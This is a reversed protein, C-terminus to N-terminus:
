KKLNDFQNNCEQKKKRKKCFNNYSNELNKELTINKEENIYNWLLEKLPNKLLCFQFYFYWKYVERTSRNLEFYRIKIYEKRKYFDDVTTFRIDEILELFEEM